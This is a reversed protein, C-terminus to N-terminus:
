LKSKRMRRKYFLYLLGLLFLMVFLSPESMRQTDDNLDLSRNGSLAEEQKKKLMEKQAENEVVIYATLPTLIRSKFSNQVLPLWQEDATQPYLAQLMWQGQILLGSEWNKEKISALNSKLVKSKTNLVISPLSDNPLYSLPKDISPWVKVKCEPFATVGSEVISRVDEFLSYSSLREGNLGYFKDNEPYTFKLDAFDNYVIAKQINDSVVVIIPYTDKPNTYSEFLIKKIARDLFFGGETYQSKLYEEWGEAMEKTKVYTGTYSIRAGQGSIINKNLLGKIDSINQRQKDSTAHSIDVIFHYYPKRSVTKLSQKEKSSVYVVERKENEIQNKVQSEVGITKEVGSDSGLAVSHGDINIVVPDKHIFQIGTRRVEGTSFPFVRFDVKNGSLYHLMGPDRNENRIQSFVWTAAKKEALIGMEKIDGVYLYYDSIWCGDPLDIQTIYESNRLSALRNEISLDIWSVWAAKEKDYQSRHQIDIISIEANGVKALEETEQDPSENYSFVNKILQKKNFSLNLNDLVLWKFYSSLYPTSNYFFQSQKNEDVVKLTKLVSGANLDYEKTYDPSYLYELTEFLVSREYQYSLSVGIPLIFFGVIMIPYLLSKRYLTRLYKFDEYILDLHIIFLLLPTLMLFGTGILLIAFVSLPLFPLFVLFFYFTYLFTACRGFFVFLRVKRNEFSPLCILVGNVVALIPFAYSSFDGFLDDVFSNLFLGLLPFLLAVPIKWFLEYEKRITKDSILIYLFRILFFLFFTIGIIMLSILIHHGDSSVITWLPALLIGFVYFLVPIFLAALINPWAKMRKTHPTLILVLCLLSHILTPMLFTGVYLYINGSFLWRPVNWPVFDDSYNAYVYLYIAYIVLSIASYFICIHKKRVCQITAYAFSLGSLGILSLAFLKWLWLESASLFSEIIHLESWGIFILLLVPLTNVIFIWRPDLLKKM